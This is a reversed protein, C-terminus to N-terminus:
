RSVAGGHNWSGHGRDRAQQKRSHVQAGGGGGGGPSTASGEAGTMRKVGHGGSMCGVRFLSAIIAIATGIAVAKSHPNCPLTSVRGTQHCLPLITKSAGILRDPTSAGTARAPNRMIGLRSRCRRNKPFRPSLRLELGSRRCNSAITASSSLCPWHSAMRRAAESRSRRSIGWGPVSAPGSRQRAKRACTMSAASSPSM